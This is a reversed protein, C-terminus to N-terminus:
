AGDGETLSMAEDILSDEHDWGRDWWSWHLNLTVGAAGMQMLDEPSLRVGRRIEIARTEGTDDNRLHLTDGIWVEPGGNRDAESM